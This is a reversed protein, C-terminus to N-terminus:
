SAHYVREVSIWNFFGLQFQYIELGGIVTWFSLHLLCLNQVVLSRSVRIPDSSDASVSKGVAVMVMLIAMALSANLLYVDSKILLSFM